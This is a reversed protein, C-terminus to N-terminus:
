SPTEGDEVRKGPIDQQRLPPELSKAPLLLLLLLLLLSLLLEAPRTASKNRDNGCLFTGRKQKKPKSRPRNGEEGQENLTEGENEVRGTRVYYERGDADWLLCLVRNAGSIKEGLASCCFGQRGYEQSQDM